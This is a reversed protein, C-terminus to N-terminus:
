AYTLNPADRASHDAIGHRFFVVDGGTRLAPVIAAAALTDPPESVAPSPAASAASM